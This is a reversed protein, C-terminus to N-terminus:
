SNNDNEIAICQPCIFNCQRDYVLEDIDYARDCSACIGIGEEEIEEHYTNEGGWLPSRDSYIM